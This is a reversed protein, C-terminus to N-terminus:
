FIISAQGDRSVLEDFCLKWPCVSVLCIDEENKMRHNVIFDAVVEARMALLSEYTLDYEVLAYVWKGIRGSLILQQLMYKIM